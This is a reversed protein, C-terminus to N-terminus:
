APFGIEAMEASYEVRRVDCQAPAAEAATSSDEMMEWMLSCLPLLKGLPWLHGRKHKQM